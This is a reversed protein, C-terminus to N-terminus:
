FRNFFDAIEQTASNPPIHDGSWPCWVVPYDADCNQYEVCGNQGLSTTQSSCKNKALYKDRAAEGFQLDVVGDNTGHILIAAVRNESDNCGSWLSGSIPAVARFVHGLECGIANSMMGGYSFGVSFVKSTDICMGQKMKDLIALIFRIDRNDTNAWGKDLGEPAIFIVSDGSLGKLGYYPGNSAWSGNVVDSAQGDRWHIAFVLRYARQNSYSGPVDVWYERTTGDSTLTFKGNQFAPSLGCGTSGHAPHDDSSSSFLLSSSFLESSSSSILSSSSLPDQSSSSLSSSVPSSFAESSSSTEEASSSMDDLSSSSQSVSFPASSSVGTFSSSSFFLSSYGNERSSILPEFGNDDTGCSLLSGSLAVLVPMWCYKM